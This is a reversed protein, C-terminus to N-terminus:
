GHQRRKKYKAVIDLLVAEIDIRAPCHTQCMGCAVCQTRGFELFSRVFKHYYWNYYREKIGPHCNEGGAASASGPLACFNESGALKAFGPLTCADWKRCRTATEGSLDISDEISFCHCLPCVYTCIGCGLCETGLREWTRPYGTWSWEVAEKLLATDMFLKQLEPMTREESNTTASGRGPKLNPLFRKIVEQGKATIAQVRYSDRRFNSFIIDGGPAVDFRESTVGILVARKRHRFYYYDREPNSMIEVFFTIAELERLTLGYLVFNRPAPPTSITGSKTSVTFTTEEPPFCYQKPPLTNGTVNFIDYERELSKLFSHIDSKKILKVVFTVTDKGTPHANYDTFLILICM